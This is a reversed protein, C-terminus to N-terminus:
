VQLRGCAPRVPPHKVERLGADIVRRIRLREAQFRRGLMASSLSLRPRLAFDLSLHGFELGRGVGGAQNSNSYQTLMPVGLVTCGQQLADVSVLCSSPFCPLGGGRQSGRLDPACASDVPASM